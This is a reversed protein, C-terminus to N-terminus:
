GLFAVDCARTLEINIYFSTKSKRRVKGIQVIFFSCRLRPVLLLCPVAKLNKTETTM